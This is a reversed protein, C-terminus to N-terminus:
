TGLTLPIGKIWALAGGKLILLMFTGLVYETGQNQIEFSLYLRVLNM